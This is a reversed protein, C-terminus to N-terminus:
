SNSRILRGDSFRVEYSHRLRCPRTGHEGLHSSDSDHGNRTGLNQPMPGPFATSSLAPASGLVIIKVEMAANKWAANRWAANLRVSSQIVRDRSSFYTLARALLNHFAALDCPHIPVHFVRSWSM